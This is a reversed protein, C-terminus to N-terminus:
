SSWGVSLPSARVIVDKQKGLSPLKEMIHTFVTALVNAESSMLNTFSPALVSTEPLVMSTFLILYATSPITHTFWVASISADPLIM